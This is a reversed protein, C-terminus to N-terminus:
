RLECGYEMKFSADKRYLSEAEITSITLCKGDSYLIKVEGSNLEDNVMVPVGTSIHLYGIKEIQKSTPITRLLKYSTDTNMEIQTITVPIKIKNLCEIFENM